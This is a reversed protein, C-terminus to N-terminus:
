QTEHTNKIEIIETPLCPNKKYKIKIESIEIQENGAYSINTLQFKTLLKGSQLCGTTESKTPQNLTLFAMNLNKVTNITVPQAPFNFLNSNNSQIEFSVGITLTPVLPSKIRFDISEISLKNPGDLKYNLEFVCDTVKILDLSTDFVLGEAEIFGFDGFDPNSCTETKLTAHAPPINKLLKLKTFQDSLETAQALFPFYLALIIIRFM